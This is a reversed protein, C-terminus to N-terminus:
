TPAVVNVVNVANVVKVAKKKESKGNGSRYSTSWEVEQLVMM